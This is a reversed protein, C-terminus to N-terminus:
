FIFKSFFFKKCRHCVLYPDTKVKRTSDKNGYWLSAPRMSYMTLLDRMRLNEVLTLASKSINYSLLISSSRGPVSGGVGGRGGDAEQKYCLKLKRPRGQTEFFSNLWLLSFICFCLLFALCFLLLKAMWCLWAGKTRGWLSYIIDQAMGKSQKASVPLRVLHSFNFM